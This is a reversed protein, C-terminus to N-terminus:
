QVYVKRRRKEARIRTSKVVASLLQNMRSSPTKQAVSVLRDVEGVVCKEKRATANGATRGHLIVEPLQQGQQREEHRVDEAAVHDLGQQLEQAVVRVRRGRRGRRRRRKLHKCSNGHAQSTHIQTRDSSRVHWDHYPRTHVRARLIHRPLKHRSSSSQKFNRKTYRVYNDSLSVDNSVFM